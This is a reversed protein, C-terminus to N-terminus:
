LSYFNLFMGYESILFAPKYNSGRFNRQGFGREMYALILLIRNLIAFHEEEILLFNLPESSTSRGLNLESRNNFLKNPSKM